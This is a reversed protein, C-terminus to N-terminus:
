CFVEGPLAQLTRRPYQTFDTQDAASAASNIRKRIM